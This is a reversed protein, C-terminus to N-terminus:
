GRLSSRYIPLFTSLPFAHKLQGQDIMEPHGETVDDILM